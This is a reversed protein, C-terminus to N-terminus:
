THIVKDTYSIVLNEHLFEADDDSKGETVLVFTGSGFVGTPAITPPLDRTVSNNVREVSISGMRM